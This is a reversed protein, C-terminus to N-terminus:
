GTPRKAAFFDRGGNAIPASKVPIGYDSAHVIDGNGVYMAVHHITAASGGYFLLDGPQLQDKSVPRGVGFQARSTRPLNVGAQAYSWMTLGSCDFVPPKSGGLSYTDGRRSLAAAVARGAAETPAGVVPPPPPPPKATSTPTRPPTRVPPPPAPPPTVPDAPGELEKKQAATLKDLEAKVTAIKADLEKRQAAIQNTLKLAADRADTARHQADAAQHEASSAAAVAGAMEALTRRNGEALVNLATSRDLFDRQSTGTLVASLKDFRAGRFTAGSLDDVEGRFQQEKAKAQEGAQYAATLDATAKDLEAQKADKDENAQLFSQHLKEAEVNLARYQEVAQSEITPQAMAPGPAVSVVAAVLSVVAVRAIRSSAM